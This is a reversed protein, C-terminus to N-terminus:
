NFYIENDKDLSCYARWDKYAISGNSNRGIRHITFQKNENYQDWSIHMKTIIIGRDQEHETYLDVNYGRDLLPKLIIDFRFNNMNSYYGDLNLLIDLETDGNAANKNIQEVIIEFQRKFRDTLIHKYKNYLEKADILMSRNDIPKIENEEILQQKAQASFTSWMTQLWNEIKEDKTPDIITIIKRLSPINEILFNLFKYNTDDLQAQILTAIQIQILLEQVMSSASKFRAHGEYLAVLQNYIYENRSIEM